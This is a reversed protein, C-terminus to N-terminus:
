PKKWGEMRTLVREPTLYGVVEEDLIATPAM